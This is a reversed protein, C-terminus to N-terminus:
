CDISTVSLQPDMFEKTQSDKYQYWRFDNPQDKEKMYFPYTIIPDTRLYWKVMSDMGEKTIVANVSEGKLNYEMAFKFINNIIDYEEFFYKGDLKHGDTGSVSLCTNFPQPPCAPCPTPAPCPSEPPGTNCCNNLNLNQSISINKPREPKNEGGVSFGNISDIGCV